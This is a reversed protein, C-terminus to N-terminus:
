RSGVERIEVDGRVDGGHVAGGENEELQHSGHVPPNAAPFM